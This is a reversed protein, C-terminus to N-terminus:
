MVTRKPKRREIEHEAAKASQFTMGEEVGNRLSRIAYGTGRTVVEHKGDTYLAVEEFNMFGHLPKSFTVNGGETKIAIVHVM